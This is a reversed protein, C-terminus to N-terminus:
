IAKKRQGIVDPLRKFKQTRRSGGDNEEDVLFAEDTEFWAVEDSM